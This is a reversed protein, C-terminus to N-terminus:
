LLQYPCFEDVFVLLTLCHEFKAMSLSKILMDISNDHTSVKGMIINGDIMSPAATAVDSTVISGQLM